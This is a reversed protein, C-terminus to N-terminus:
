KALAEWQAPTNCNLLAPLDAATLPVAQADMAQQFARLSTPAAPDQMWDALLRRSADDLCLRMPLRHGDLIACRAPGSRLLRVLLEPTLAPMDVPVVLLLGDDVAQAVGHLGGLPGRQPFPDVVGQHAPYRGSVVVRAAGAAVLLTAMHELLPRGRWPLLAKDQGMRTSQGGALVVGTWAPLDDHGSQTNM